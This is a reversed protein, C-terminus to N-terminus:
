DCNTPNIARDFSPTDRLEQMRSSARTRLCYRGAPTVVEARLDGQNSRNETLRTTPPRGWDASPPPGRYSPLTPREITTPGQPGSATMRGTQLATARAPPLQTNLQAGTSSAELPTTATPAAPTDTQATTPHAQTTAPRNATMPAVPPGSAKPAHRTAPTRDPQRAPATTHRPEAQPPLNSPLPAPAVPVLYATIPANAQAARATPATSHRLARTPEAPARPWLVLLAAHLLLSAGLAWWAQHRPTM